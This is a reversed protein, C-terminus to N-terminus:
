LIFLIKECFPSLPGGGEGGEAWGGQVVIWEPLILILLILSITSGSETVGMAQKVKNFLIITKLKSKKPRNKFIKKSHSNM